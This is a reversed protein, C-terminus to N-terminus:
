SRAFKKIVHVLEDIAEGEEGESIAEMVCGRAHRELL